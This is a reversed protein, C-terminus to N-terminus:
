LRDRRPSGGGAPCGGAKSSPCKSPAGPAPDGPVGADELLAVLHSVGNLLLVQGEDVEEVIRLLLVGTHHRFQISCPPFRLLLPEPLLELQRLM